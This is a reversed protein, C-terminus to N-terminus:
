SALMRHLTPNDIDAGLLRAQRLAARDGLRAGHLHARVVLERMDCRAALIALTASLRRAGPQDGVDLATTITADLVHDMLVVRDRVTLEWRVGRRRCSAVAGTAERV